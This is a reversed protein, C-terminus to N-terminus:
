LPLNPPSAVLDSMTAIGQACSFAPRRKRTGRTNGPTPATHGAGVALLLKMTFCERRCNVWFNGAALKTAGVWSPPNDDMGAFPHRVIFSEFTRKILEHAAAATTALAPRYNGLPCFRPLRLISLNPAL